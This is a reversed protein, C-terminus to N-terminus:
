KPPTGVEGLRRSYFLQDSLKQIHEQMASWEALEGKAQAVSAKSKLGSIKLEMERQWRGFAADVVVKDMAQHIQAIRVDIRQQEVADKGEFFRRQRLLSALRIIFEQGKRQLGESRLGALRKGEELQIQEIPGDPWDM